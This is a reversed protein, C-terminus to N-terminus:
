NFIKLFLKLFTIAFNSNFLPNANAVSALKKGDPDMTGILKQTDTGMKTCNSRPSNKTDDIAPTFHTKHAAHIKLFKKKIPDRVAELYSSFKQSKQIQVM